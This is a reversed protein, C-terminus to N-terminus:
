APLYVLQRWNRFKHGKLAYFLIFAYCPLMIRYAGQSGPGSEALAGYFLPLIAGGAIGMILLASGISTHKSNLDRLALPWVAPWVLANALGFLAVYLVIDPIEPVGTWAFALNWISSSTADASLILLTLVIGLAASIALATEQTAWRPIILIGFLYGTVMFAMTYSTLQGFNAVGMDKGFLGITDGAIVEAGMYFFLTVAGLILQPHQLVSGSEYSHAADEGYEPEPLPSFKLFVGLIMLLGAMLMYPKILRSSLESLEDARQIVDLSALRAESFQSIDTLVLATFVLPAIIGATKNLVGMISIRVAATEHPGIVVIYPNSATQLMTLGAGLVFLAFLFIGYERLQAAPIFILTGVVMVFLGLAMGNKYGTHQLIYSVPLAMVTYSIYFALTVLYAQLHNLECAIQLFPILSGNLWTVFGFLFFLAGIIFMPVFGSEQMQTTIMM